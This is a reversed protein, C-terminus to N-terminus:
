NAAHASRNVGQCETARCTGNITFSVVGVFFLEPTTLFEQPRNMELLIETGLHNLTRLKHKTAETTLLM